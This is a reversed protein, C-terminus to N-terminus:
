RSSSEFRNNGESDSPCYFNELEDRRFLPVKNGNFLYFYNNYVKKSDGPIDINIHISMNVHVDITIHISMIAYQGYWVMGDM